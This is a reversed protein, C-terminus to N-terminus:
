RTTFICRNSFVRTHVQCPDMPRFANKIASASGGSRTLRAAELHVVARLVACADAWPIDRLWEFDQFAHISTVYANARLCALLEGIRPEGDTCQGLAVLKELTLQDPRQNSV